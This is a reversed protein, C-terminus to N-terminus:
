LQNPPSDTLLTPNSVSSCKRFKLLFQFICFTLLHLPSSLLRFLLIVIVYFHQSFCGYCSDNELPPPLVVLCPQALFM